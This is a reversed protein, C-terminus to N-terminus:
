SDELSRRGRWAGLLAAVVALGSLGVELPQELRMAPTRDTLLTVSHELIAAREVPARAVVAGDPAIMGSIGNTSAVVLYRGTEIARLRSIAFQQALQGTGTYTANNTPVVVLDAGGDVVARMLGDYGVEFCMLVGARVPGVTLVGPKKGPMMDAPIQDLAPIHPALLSRFPIYEGFPVPHIKDYYAGPQGTASWVIARNFWRQHNDRDGVVAGMLLPAGVAEAAGAIAAAASVDTYPDIDSSNEPWVLVDPRKATGAEIEQALRLTERVHNDLVKRRQAFADLGIGPVNGQITAVTVVRGTGVPWPHLSAASAVLTVAALAAVGRGLRGRGGLLLWGLTTGVLAVAFTVGGPGVYALLPAVPTDETAFALRGWPFGGFPVADRVVEVAVWSAAVWVPWFRLRGAWGVALGVLGYAAGELVSLPLYAYWGIVNLWPLLTLMFATGFLAGLGFGTRPRVGAACVVLTAIALPLLV